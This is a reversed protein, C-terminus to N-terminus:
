KIGFLKQSQLFFIPYPYFINYGQFSGKGLKVPFSGPYFIFKIRNIFFINRGRLPCFYKTPATKRTAKPQPLCLFVADFFRRIVPTKKLKFIKRIIYCALFHAYLIICTYADLEFLARRPVNGAM